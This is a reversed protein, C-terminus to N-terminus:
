TDKKGVSSWLTENSSTGKRPSPSSSVSRDLSVGRRRHRRRFRNIGRGRSSPSNSTSRRRADESQDCKVQAYQPEPPWDYFRQYILPSYPVVVRHVERPDVNPPGVPGSRNPRHHCAFVPQDKWSNHNEEDKQSSQPDEPNLRHKASRSLKAPPLHGRERLVRIAWNQPGVLLVGLIFLFLRWPFIFLVLGLVGCILSLWFTLMPDRWTVVNFGARFLCLFSYSSGIIPEVYLGVRAVFPNSHSYQGLHLLKDLRRPVDTKRRKEPKKSDGFYLSGTKNLVYAKDDFRHWTLEHMKDKIEDLDDTLKKGSSPGEVDINQEPVVANTNQSSPESTNESPPASHVSTVNTVAIDNTKELDFSWSLATSNRSRLWRNEGTHLENPDEDSSRQHSKFSSTLIEPECSSSRRHHRPNLMDVGSSVGDRVQNLGMGIGDRIPYVVNHLGTRETIESAAYTLTSAAKKGAKKGTYAVAKRPAFYDEEFDYDKFGSSNKRLLDFEMDFRPMMSHVEGHKTTSIQFSANPIEPTVKETEGKRLALAEKVSLKPYIKGSAFPFELHDDEMSLQADDRDPLFGLLRFLWKGKPIHTSVKYNFQEFVSPSTSLKSEPTRRRRLPLPRLGLELPEIPRYNKDRKRFLSTFMEEWSPPVFGRQGPGDIGYKVYTRMLQLLLYLVFYAPVLSFANSYISHMWTLFVYASVGPYQWTRTDRLEIRIFTFIYKRTFNIERIAAKMQQFTFRGPIHAGHITIAVNRFAKEDACAVTIGTRPKSNQPLPIKLSKPLYSLLADKETNWNLTFRLRVAGRRRRSYVHTSLRLPLTVDYSTGPRLRALDVVVRGAFDDKVRKGDDNFVGVYLRAYAHFLPFICARRAMRLWMPNARNPIIDTAFAYSGCVLYVVADTEAMRDLKPLGICQLVEVRLSGIEKEKCDPTRLDHFQGAPLVMDDRMERHTMWRHPYAYTPLVRFEKDRSARGAYGRVQHEVDNAIHFDGSETDTEDLDLQRTDSAFTADRQSRIRMRNHGMLHLPTRLSTLLSKKRRVDDSLRGLRSFARLWLAKENSYGKNCRFYLRLPRGHNRARAIDDHLESEAVVSGEQISSLHGWGEDVDEEEDEEISHLGDDAFSNHPQDLSCSAADSHDAFPFGEEGNTPIELVFCSSDNEVDKVKWPMQAPIHIDVKGVDVLSKLSPVSLSRQLRSYVTRLVTASPKSSSENTDTDSHSQHHQHHEQAQRHIAYEPPEKYITISGGDTLDLYCFRRKWFAPSFASNRGKRCHLTGELCVPEVSGISAQMDTSAATTMEDDTILALAARNRINERSTNERVLGNVTSM